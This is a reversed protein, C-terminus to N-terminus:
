ILDTIMEKITKISKELKTKQEPEMFDGDVCNILYMDELFKLGQKLSEQREIFSEIYDDTVEKEHDGFYYDVIVPSQEFDNEEDWLTIVNIDYTKGDFDILRGIEFSKSTKEYIHRM